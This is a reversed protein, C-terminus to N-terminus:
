ADKKNELDFFKCTIAVKFFERLLIAEEVSIPCSINIQNEGNKQFVSMFYGFGYKPDNKDFKLTKSITIGNKEFQHFLGKGNNIKDCRNEIVAIIYALDINDLKMKIVSKEDYNFKFNGNKDKENAQKAFLAFVDNKESLNFQAVSGTFKPNPKFIKYEANKSFTKTEVM